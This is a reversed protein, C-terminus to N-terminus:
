PPPPHHRTGGGGESESVLPPLQQPDGVLVFVRAACIPGLSAPLTVQSAEDLVCVDFRRGAVLAHAAGYCTAGVVAAGGAAKLDAVSAAPWRESGLAYPLVGPHISSSSSSSSSSGGGARGIRLVDLGAAILRLMLNDLAANTYSSVLVSRGAAALAAM